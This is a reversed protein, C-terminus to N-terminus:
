NLDYETLYKYVEKCYEVGTKGMEYFLGTLMVCWFFPNWWYMTYLWHSPKPKPKRKKM